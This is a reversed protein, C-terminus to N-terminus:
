NANISVCSATAFMKQTFVSDEEQGSRYVVQRPVPNNSNNPPQSKSAVIVTGPAIRVNALPTALSSIICRM